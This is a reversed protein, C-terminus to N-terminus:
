VVKLLTENVFDVEITIGQGNEVKLSGGLQKSLGRMLSM